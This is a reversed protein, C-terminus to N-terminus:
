YTKMIRSSFTRKKIKQLQSGRNQRPRQQRPLQMGTDWSSGLVTKTHADPRSVGGGRNPFLLIAPSPCLHFPFFFTLLPYLIIQLFLFISLAPPLLLRMIAKLQASFVKKLVCYVTARALDTFCNRKWPDRTGEDSQQQQIGSSPSPSFLKCKTEKAKGRRERRFRAFGGCQM